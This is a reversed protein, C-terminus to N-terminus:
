PNNGFFGGNNTSGSNRYNIVSKSVASYLDATGAATANYSLTSGKAVGMAGADAFADINAGMFAFEWNYKDRQHSVMDKIKSLPYKMRTKSDAFKTIKNGSKLTFVTEDEITLSSANEEGDTIILFLVKSPREEEKLSALRVGLNDITQGMADLLATGGHTKYEQKSLSPVDKLPRFDYVTHCKTNFIHLSVAVEGPIAQQEAIFKNVGGITDNILPEM